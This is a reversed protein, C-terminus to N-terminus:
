DEGELMITLVPRADDGPGLVAWLKVSKPESGGVGGPYEFHARRTGSMQVADMTISLLKAIRDDEAAVCDSATGQPVCIVEAWVGPTMAAPYVIGCAKAQETIDFLVGDEIANARSYAHVVEADDFACVLPMSDSDYDRLSDIIDDFRTRLRKM